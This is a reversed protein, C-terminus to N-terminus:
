GQKPLPFKAFIATVTEDIAPGINQMTKRTVARVGVGEWVLRRARADVLDVNLTGETYESVDTEYRPFTAYLGARYGYYGGFGSPRAFPDRTATQTVRVKEQLHGSFNVLLDPESEVLRLGRALLERTTAVKLRQSVISAYQAQDTGLQEFYAFTRYSTLDAEPDSIARVSTNSACGSLALMLLAAIAAPTFRNIM